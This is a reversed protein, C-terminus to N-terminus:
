TREFVPSPLVDGVANSLRHTQANRKVALSLRPKLLSLRGGPGIAQSRPNHGAAAEFVMAASRAIPM